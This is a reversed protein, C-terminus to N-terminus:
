NMERSIMHIATQFLYRAVFSEVRDQWQGSVTVILASWNTSYKAKYINKALNEWVETAFRCSFFLHDRTELNNNCLVCTSQLGRNWQILRDGTSLRNKVALWACFSFKPTAHPFWIGNHWSVKNLVTRIQNWTDRTCFKTQYMNNKGRWLVTDAEEVRKHRQSLLTEEIQNLIVTRHRRRRLDSWAEAVTANKRVGLDIVGREGVADMLCGLQSWNEYWFSARNGNKVEVKCFEKAKARYKLLKAWMWSGHNTTARVSLFNNSKLLYKDIWRVWLSDAHSVIRWILKMCCVDNVEKLSRLGLGGEQKPKCVVEWSIRAKHPNLDPGSWLFASCLKEVERICGRPLRFAALWFNCISRLVSTILNLRGAYSLYRATWSSIKKKIHELLPNYDMATLRKTVLPLGLYRVPLQGVDFQYREKIEQSTTDPVGALYITTKEMSIKLGSRKAFIDFIEVIGDISRVKGDSLVMLDDAFSLHTLGIDKCRPHYDYKKNGAAQDLMKSLVDMSIVFLYPSLSCGQRLGRKSQFFGALEGNVQVSFSATTVCLMIWHVFETPFDM